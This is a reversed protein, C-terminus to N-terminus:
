GRDAGRTLTLSASRHWVHRLFQAHRHLQASGSRQRGSDGIRVRFIEQRTEDFRLASM